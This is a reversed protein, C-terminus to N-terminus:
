DFPSPSTEDGTDPRRFVRGNLSFVSATVERIALDRPFGQAALHQLADSVAEDYYQESCGSCVMAPVDEVIVPRDDHWLLTRTFSVTLKEGCRPCPTPIVTPSDSTM